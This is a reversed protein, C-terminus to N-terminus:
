CMTLAAASGAQGRQGAPAASRNPKAAANRTVTRSEFYHDGRAGSYQSRTAADFTWYPVYLGNLARGSAPTIRCTREPAFWLSGLWNTMAERAQREDLAFPLVAQPKIRREEGTGIVVPTACFPCETAHTAGRFEM